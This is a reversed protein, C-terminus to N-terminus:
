VSYITPLTLHTYSVPLGEADPEERGMWFLCRKLDNEIEGRRMWVYPADAHDGLTAQLHEHAEEWEREAMLQGVSKMAAEFAAEGSVVQPPAAPACCLLSLSLAALM